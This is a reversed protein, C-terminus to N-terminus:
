SQLIALIEKLPTTPRKTKSLIDAIAKLKGEPAVKSPTAPEQKVSPLAALVQRRSEDSAHIYYKQLTHINDGLIDALLSIPVGSNAAQSAYFHRFSHVGYKRRDRGIKVGNREKFENWELIRICDGTIGDVNSKYRAATKPLVYGSDDKWAKAKQLEAKLVEHIPIHVERAVQRTKVPYTTILGKRESINSWKLLCADVLRLGSYALLYFLAKMEEPNLLHLSARKPYDDLHDFANLISVVEPASFEERKQQIGSRKEIGSFPNVELGAEETLVKCVLRCAQIHYNFTNASIAETALKAAYSKADDPTIESMWEIGPHNVSLHTTVFKDWMRRYNGLTGESSQPRTQNALYREWVEALKVKHTAVEVLKKAKAIHVAIEEKSEANQLSKPLVELAAREADKLTTVHLCRAKRHGNVQVTLYYVGKKIFFSGAGRARKAM